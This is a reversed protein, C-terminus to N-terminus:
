CICVRAPLGQLGIGAWPPLAVNAALLLRWILNTHSSFISNTLIAEFNQLRSLGYRAEIILFIRLTVTRLCINMTALLLGIAQLQGKMRLHFAIKSDTVGAVSLALCTISTFLALLEAPSAKSKQCPIGFSPSPAEQFTYRSATTRSEQPKKSSDISTNSPQMRNPLYSSNMKRVAPTEVFRTKIDARQSSLM